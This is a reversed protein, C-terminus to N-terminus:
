CKRVLLGLSFRKEAVKVQQSALKAKGVPGEGFFEADGAGVEGIEASARSCGGRAEGAADQDGKRLESINNGVVQYNGVRKECGM